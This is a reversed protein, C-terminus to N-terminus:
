KSNTDEKCKAQLKALCKTYETAIKNYEMVEETTIIKASAAVLIAISTGLIDDFHESIVSQVFESKSFCQCPSVAEDEEKEKGKEEVPPPTNLMDEFFAVVDQKHQFEERAVETLKGNDYICKQVTWPQADEVKPEPREPKREITPEPATTTSM